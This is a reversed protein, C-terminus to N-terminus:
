KGDTIEPKPTASQVSNIQISTLANHAKSIHARLERRSIDLMTLAKSYRNELEAEIAAINQEVSQLHAHLKETDIARSTTLVTQFVLLLYPHLMSYSVVVVNHKYTEINVSPCLSYVADPVVAVGFPFTINPDIYKKVERAKGIIVGEIQERLKKQEDPDTSNSFQELLNTAAWKSDIPLILNNPLRLALEVPKNGVRFNQVQWETPLKGILEEVVREGAAGKSSSGAVIMELRRISDATQKEIDTRAKLDATLAATQVRVEQITQTLNQLPTSVDTQAATPKRLQLVLTVVTLVGLVLVLVILIVLLMTDM